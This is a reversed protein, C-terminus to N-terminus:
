GLRRGEHIFEIIEDASLDANIGPVDLPSGKEILRLEAQIEPDNAMAQLQAEIDAQDSITHRIHQALRELLWLQKALSLKYIKAEIESLIKTV